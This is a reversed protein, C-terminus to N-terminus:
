SSRSGRRIAGSRTAPSQLSPRTRAGHGVTRGALMMGQRRIEEIPVVAKERLSLGLDDLKIRRKPKVRTQKQPRRWIM